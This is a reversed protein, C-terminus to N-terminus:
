PHHLNKPPIHTLLILYKDNFKKKLENLFSKFEKEDILNLLVDAGGFGVL